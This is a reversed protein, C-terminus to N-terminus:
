KETKAYVPEQLLYSYDATKNNTYVLRELNRMRTEHDLLVVPVSEMRTQSIIIMDVKNNLVQFDEKNTFKTNFYMNAIVFVLLACRYIWDGHRIFFTKM